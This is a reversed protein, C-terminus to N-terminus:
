APPFTTPNDKSFDVTTTQGAGIVPVPAVPEQPIIIWLALYVLVQPGPLLISVVFAIRVLTTDWGFYKALGACVGGLWNDGRSRYLKRPADVIPPSTSAPGQSGTPFADATM